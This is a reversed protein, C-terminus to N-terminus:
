SVLEDEGAAEEAEIAERLQPVTMAEYGEVELKAAIAQLEPKLLKSLDRESEISDSAAQEGVKAALKAAGIRLLYDAEDDSGSFAKGPAVTERQGKADNHVIEHIAILEKM